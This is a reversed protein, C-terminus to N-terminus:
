RAIRGRRLQATNSRPRLRDARRDRRSRSTRSLTSIKPRNKSRMKTTRVASGNDSNGEFLVTLASPSKTMPPTPTGSSASRKPM